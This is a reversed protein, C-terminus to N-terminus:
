AEVSCRRFRLNKKRLSRTLGAAGDLASICQFDNFHLIRQSEMAVNDDTSLIEYEVKHPILPACDNLEM